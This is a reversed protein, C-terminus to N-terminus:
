LNDKCGLPKGYIKDFAKECQERMIQSSRIMSFSIVKWNYNEYVGSNINIGNKKLELKMCVPYHTGDKNNNYSDNFLHSEVRKRIRSGHGRYIVKLKNDQFKCQNTNLEFDTLILYFGKGYQLNDLDTLRSIFNKHIKKDKFNNKIEFFIM